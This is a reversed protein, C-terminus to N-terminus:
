INVCCGSAPLLTGLFPHALAGLLLKGVWNRPSQSSIIVQHVTHTPPLAIQTSPVEFAWLPLLIHLDFSRTIWAQLIPPTHTPLLPSLHPQMQSISRSHGQIALDLSRSIIRLSSPSGPFTKLLLAHSCKCKLSVMSVPTDHSYVPLLSFAASPGVIAISLLPWIKPLSLFCFDYFSFPPM